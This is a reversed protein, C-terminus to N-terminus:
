AKSKLFMMMSLIAIFFLDDRIKDLVIRQTVIPPVEM